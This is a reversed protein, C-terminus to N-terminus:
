SVKPFWLKQYIGPTAQWGEVRCRQLGRQRESPTKTVLFDESMTQNTHQIPFDQIVLAKNPDANNADNSIFFYTMVLTTNPNAM